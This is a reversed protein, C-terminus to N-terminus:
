LGQQGNVPLSLLGWLWNPHKPSSSFDRVVVRFSAGIGRNGLDYFSAINMNKDLFFKIHIYV